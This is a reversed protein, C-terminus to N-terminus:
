SLDDFTSLDRIMIIVFLSVFWFKVSFLFVRFPRSEKSKTLKDSAPFIKLLMTLIVDGASVLVVSIKCCNCGLATSFADGSGVKLFVSVGISFDM